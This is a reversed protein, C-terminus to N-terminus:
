QKTGGQTMAQSSEFAHQQLNQWIRSPSRVKGDPCLVAPGTREIRRMSVPCVDGFHDIAWGIVPTSAKDALSYGPLAPIITFSDSM